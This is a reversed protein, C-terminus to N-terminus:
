GTILHDFELGSKPALLLLFLLQTPRSPPRFYSHASVRDARDPSLRKNPEM